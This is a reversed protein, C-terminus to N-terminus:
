FTKKTNHIRQGVVYQPKSPHFYPAGSCGPSSPCDVAFCFDKGQGNHVSTQVCFFFAHAVCVQKVKGWSVIKGAFHRFAKQLANHLDEAHLEPQETREVGM